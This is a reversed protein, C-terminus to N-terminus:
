FSGLEFLGNAHNHLAGLHNPDLALAADFKTM